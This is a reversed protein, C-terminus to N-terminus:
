HETQNNSLNYQYGASFFIEEKTLFESANFNYYEASAFFIRSFVGISGLNKDKGCCLYFFVCACM